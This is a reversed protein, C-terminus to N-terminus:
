GPYVDFGQETADKKKEMKYINKAQLLNM